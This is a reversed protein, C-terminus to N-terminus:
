VLDPINSTKYFHFFILTIQYAKIKKTNNIKSQMICITLSYHLKQMIYDIHHNRLVVSKRFLLPIKFTTKANKRM